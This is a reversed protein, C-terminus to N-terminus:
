PEFVKFYAGVQKIRNERFFWILTPTITMTATVAIGYAAALRSSERFALVLGLCAVMLAWNVGPLYIQGMASASTHIIRMRPAFGLQMAQQTLSYVGSIMAQSAIITAMTSLAVMPLLLGEPVLSFFPQFAKDPEDLLLAGQGFYNCLLSPFVVTYWSIRIPGAGFHGMDACLAEGGTICLVVSGLVIIGHLGNEWFFSAAHLPNVAALVKPHPIIYALGLIALVVFWVLMIPGLIAGIRETGHRQVMFLGLLIACTLYPV